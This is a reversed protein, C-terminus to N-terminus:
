DFTKYSNSEKDYEIEGDQEMKIAKEILAIMPEPDRESTFSHNTFSHYKSTKGDDTYDDCSVYGNAIYLPCRSCENLATEEIEEGMFVQCLACSEFNIILSERAGQKSDVLGSGDYEVDYRKMNEPRLGIWKNLSHDLADEPSVSEAPTKYFEEKWTKLSM